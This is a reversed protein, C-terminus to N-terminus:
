FSQWQFPIALLKYNTAESATLLAPNTCIALVLSTLSLQFKM